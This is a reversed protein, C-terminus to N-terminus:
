QSATPGTSAGACSLQDVRSACSCRVQKAPEPNGGAGGAGQTTRVLVKQATSAACNVTLNTILKEAAVAPEKEKKEEGPRVKLRDKVVELGAKITEITVEKATIVVASKIENAAGEALLGAKELNEAADGVLKTLLGGNSSASGVADVLKELFTVANSPTSIAGASEVLTTATAVSFAAGRPDLNELNELVRRLIDMRGEDPFRNVLSLLKRADIRPGQSSRAATLSDRLERFNQPLPTIADAGLKYREIALREEAQRIEADLQRSHLEREADRARTELAFYVGAVAVM